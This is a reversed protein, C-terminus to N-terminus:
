PFEIFISQTILEGLKFFTTKFYDHKLPFGSYHESCCPHRRSNKEILCRLYILSNCLTILIYMNFPLFFFKTLIHAAAFDNRHRQCHRQWITLRFEFLCCYKFVLYLGVGIVHRLLFTLIAFCLIIASRQLFIMKPPPFINIFFYFSATLYFFRFTM